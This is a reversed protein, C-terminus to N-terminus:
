KGPLRRHFLPANFDGAATDAAQCGRRCKGTAAPLNTDMLPGVFDPRDTASDEHALIRQADELRNAREVLGDIAAGTVHPAFCAVPVIAHDAEVGPRFDPALPDIDDCAGAQDSGQAVRCLADTGLDDGPGVHLGRRRVAREDQLAAFLDGCIQHDARVAQM